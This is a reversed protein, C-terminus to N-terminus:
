YNGVRGGFGIRDRPRDGSFVNGGANGDIRITEHTLPNFIFSKPSKKTNKPLEYKVQPPSDYIKGPFVEPAKSGLSRPKTRDVVYNSTNGTIPDRIISKLNTKAYRAPKIETKFESHNPLEDEDDEVAFFNKLNKQFDESESNKSKKSDRPDPQRRMTEILALNAKLDEDQRIQSDLQPKILPRSQTFPSNKQLNELNKLTNLASQDYEPRKPFDKPLNKLSRDRDLYFKANSPPDLNRIPEKIPALQIKNLNRQQEFYMKTRKDIEQIDKNGETKKTMGFYGKDDNHLYDLSQKKPIENLAPSKSTEKYQFPVYLESSNRKPMFVNRNM